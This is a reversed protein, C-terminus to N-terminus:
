EVTCPASEKGNILVGVLHWMESVKGTCPELAAREGEVQMRIMKGQRAHPLCGVSPLPKQLFSSDIEQWFEAPPVFSPDRPQCPRQPPPAAPTPSLPKHKRPLQCSLPLSNTLLVLFYGHHDSGPCKIKTTMLLQTLFGKTILWDRRGEM